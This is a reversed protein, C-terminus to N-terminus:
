GRGLTGAPEAFRERQPPALRECLLEHALQLRENAGIGM